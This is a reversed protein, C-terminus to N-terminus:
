SQIKRDTDEWKGLVHTKFNRMRRQIRLFETLATEVFFSFEQSNLSSM